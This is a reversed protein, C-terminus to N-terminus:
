FITNYCQEEIKCFREFHRAQPVQPTRALVKSERELDQAEREFRKREPLPQGGLAGNGIRSGRECGRQCSCSEGLQGHDQDEHARQVADLVGVHM